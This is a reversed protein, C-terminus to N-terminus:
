FGLNTLHRRFRVSDNIATSLNEFEELIEDVLGLINDKFEQYKQMDSKYEVSKDLDTVKPGILVSSM